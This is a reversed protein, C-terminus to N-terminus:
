VAAPTSPNDLMEGFGHLPLQPTSYSPQYRYISSYYGDHVNYDFEHRSRSSTSGIPTAPSVTRLGFLQNLPPSTSFSSRTLEYFNPEEEPNTPQARGIGKVKVCVMKRSLEPRGRIFHPSYYAGKDLGRTLRKFGWLCLQRRFSKEKCTKFYKPLVQKEFAAVDFVKFAYGHPMWGVIDAHKEDSLMCILKTPFCGVNTAPVESPKRIRDPTVSSSITPAVKSQSKTEYSSAKEDTDKRSKQDKIKTMQHNLIQIEDFSVVRTKAKSQIPLQPSTTSTSINFINEHHHRGNRNENAALWDDIPLPELLLNDANELLTDSNDDLDFDFNLFAEDSSM